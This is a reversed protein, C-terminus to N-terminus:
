GREVLRGYARSSSGDETSGDPGANDRESQAEHSEEADPTQSAAVALMEEISALKVRPRGHPEGRTREHRDIQTWGEYTILESKRKRLMSEVDAPDPAPPDPLVGAALDELLADVTEQADKKNTGIVGTPGRKIWGVVYEGRRHADEGELVRGHRNPIVCRHADFPVEALPVGRYGIARMVLGASIVEVEGTATARL